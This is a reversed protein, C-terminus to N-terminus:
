LSRRHDPRYESYSVGFLASISGAGRAIDSLGKILALRGKATAFMMQLLGIFILACGKAGRRAATALSPDKLRDVATVTTGMRFYRRLVWRTTTRSPPITEVVTADAASVAKLGTQLARAFFHEDEGGSYNFAMEFRWGAARVAKLSVLVNGTYLHTIPAGDAFPGAEFFRSPVAWDPPTEVFAPVVPGAVFDAKSAVAVALLSDLWEPVPVEDDDIMALWEATVPATELQANRAHVLGRRPEHHYVIPWRLLSRYADVIPAADPAPGNDIIVVTIEPEPVRVFTLKSLGDLLRRLGEPRDVTPAAIAVRLRPEDPRPKGLRPEATGDTSRVRTEGIPQDFVGVSM